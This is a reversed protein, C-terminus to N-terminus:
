VKGTESEGAQIALRYRWGREGAVARGDGGSCLGPAEESAQAHMTPSFRAHPEGHSAEFYACWATRALVGAWSRLMAYGGAGTLFGPLSGEM